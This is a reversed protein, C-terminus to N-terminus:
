TMITVRWRGFFFNLGRLSSKGATAIKAIANASQHPGDRVRIV